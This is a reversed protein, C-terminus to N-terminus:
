IYAAGQVAIRREGIDQADEVHCIQHNPRRQPVHLLGIEVLQRGDALLEGIEDAITFADIGIEDGCDGLRLATPAPQQHRVLRQKVGAADV